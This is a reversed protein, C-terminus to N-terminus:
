ASMNRNRNGIDYSEISSSKVLIIGGIIYDEIIDDVFSCM